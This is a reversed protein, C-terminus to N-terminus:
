DIPRAYRRGTHSFGLREYFRPADERHLATTVVLRKAGRERAWADAAAVLARGVGRGRRTEPVVLATLQAVPDASHLVIRSHMTALGVVTGDLVAVIAAADHGAGLRSLREPVASAECPYGLQGLLEAIPAADAATAPRITVVDDPMM